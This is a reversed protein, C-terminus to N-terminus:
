GWDANQGRTDIHTFGPYRGIGGKFVGRARLAEAAAVVKAPDCDYVLDLARNQLHYSHTAAGPCAANYAPSRYASAICTLPVGLQNRLEDAVKLTPSLNAWLDSTPLTNAVAGRMKFHPRLIEMPKLYRLGLGALFAEYAKGEADLTVAVSRVPEELRRRNRAVSPHEKIRDWAAQMASTLEHQRDGAVWPYGGYGLAGGALTGFLASVVRRRSVPAPQPAAVEVSPALPTLKEM